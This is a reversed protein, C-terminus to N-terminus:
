IWRKEKEALGAGAMGATLCVVPMLLGLVNGGAGAAALDGALRLMLTAIVGSINRTLRRLGAGDRM